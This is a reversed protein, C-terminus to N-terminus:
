LGPFRAKNKTPRILRKRQWGAIHPHGITSVRIPRPINKYAPYPAQAAM